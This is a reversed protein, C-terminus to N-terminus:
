ESRSLLEERVRMLNTRNLLLVVTFIVVNASYISFGHKLTLYVGCVVIVSVCGIMVSNALSLRKEKRRLEEVTMHALQKRM